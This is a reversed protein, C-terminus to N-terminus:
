PLGQVCATPSANKQCAICCACMAGAQQLADICVRQHAVETKCQLRCVCSLATNLTSQQV